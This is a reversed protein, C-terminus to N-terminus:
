ESRLHTTTVTPSAGAVVVGAAEDVGDAKVDVDGYVARAVITIVGSSKRVVRSEDVAILM